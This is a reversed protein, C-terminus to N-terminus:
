VNFLFQGWKRHTRGESLGSPACSMESTIASRHRLSYSDSCRVRMERRWNRGLHSSSLPYASATCRSAPLQDRCHLYERGKM